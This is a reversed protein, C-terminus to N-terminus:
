LPPEGFGNDVVDLEPQVDVLLRVPLHQGERLDATTRKAVEKGGVSVFAIGAQALVRCTLATATKALQGIFFVGDDAEGAVRVVFAVELLVDVEDVCDPGLDNVIGPASVLLDDLPRVPLRHEVHSWFLVDELEPWGQPRLEEVDNLRLLGASHLQLSSRAPSARAGGWCFM